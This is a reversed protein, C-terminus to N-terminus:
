QPPKAILPDIENKNASLKLQYLELNESNEKCGFIILALLLYSKM